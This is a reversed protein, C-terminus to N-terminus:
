KEGPGATAPRGGLKGVIDSVLSRLREGKVVEVSSTTVLGGKRVVMEAMCSLLVGMHGM